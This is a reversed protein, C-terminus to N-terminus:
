EFLKIVETLRGIWAEMEDATEATILYTRLPTIVEFCHGPHAHSVRVASTAVNIM